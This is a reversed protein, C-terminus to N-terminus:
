LDGKKELGSEDAILTPIGKTIHQHVHIGIARLFASAVATTVVTATTAAGGAALGYGL